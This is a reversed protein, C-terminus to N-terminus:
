ENGRGESVARCTLGRRRLIALAMGSVPIGGLTRVRNMEGNGVRYGVSYDGLTETIGSSVGRGGLADRGGQCVLMEVQYAIARDIEEDGEPLPSTCIAQLLDFAVRVMAPYEREPIPKGGFTEKYFSYDPLNM